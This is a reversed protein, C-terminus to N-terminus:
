LCCFMDMEKLCLDRYRICPIGNIFYLEVINLQANQWGEDSLQYWHQLISEAHRQDERQRHM